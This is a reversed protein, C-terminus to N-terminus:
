LQGLGPMQQARHGRVLMSHCDVLCKRSRVKVMMYLMEVLLLPDKAKAELWWRGGSALDHALLLVADLTTAVDDRSDQPRPDTASSQGASAKRGQQQFGQTLVEHEQKSSRLCPLAAYLATTAASVLLV